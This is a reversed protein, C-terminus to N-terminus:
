RTLGIVARTGVFHGSHCTSANVLWSYRQGIVLVNHPCRGLMALLTCLSLERYVLECIHGRNLVEGALAKIGRDAALHWGTKASPDFPRYKRLADARISIEVRTLGTKQTRCVDKQFPTLFRNCGLVTHLRSGVQHSGERGLLDMLKDYFKVTM